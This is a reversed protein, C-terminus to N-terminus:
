CYECVEEMIKRKRGKKDVFIFRVIDYIVIMDNKWKYFVNILVLDILWIICFFLKNEYEVLCMKFM